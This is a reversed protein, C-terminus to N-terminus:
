RRGQTTLFRELQQNFAEGTQPVSHGEGPIVARDAGLDRELVDCVADFAANHAGSVVLKPFPAAALQEIPIDAEWPGREVVLM